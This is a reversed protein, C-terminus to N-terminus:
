TVGVSWLSPNAGDAEFREYEARVACSGIKFQAGAGAAFNTNTRDLSFANCTPTTIGCPRGLALSYNVTSQLRALGAKAYIDVIPVPLYLIGLAAAGNMTVNVPGANAPFGLFSSPHGFDIYALEVGVRSIPRVGVMVKFASHNAEFENGSFAPAGARVQSQGVAGGAYLGLLDDAHSLRLPIAGLTLAAVVSPQFSASVGTLFRM